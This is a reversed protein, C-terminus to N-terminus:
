KKKDLFMGDSGSVNKYPNTYKQNSSKQKKVNKMEMKLETFLFNLRQQIRPELTLIEKMRTKDVDTVPQTLLYIREERESLVGNIDELLQTRNSSNIKQNLKSYLQITLEYFEELVSM